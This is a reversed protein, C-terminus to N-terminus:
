SIYNKIIGELKDNIRGITNRRVLEFLVFSLLVVTSMIFISALPSIITFNKFDFWNLYLLMVHGIYVSFMYPAFYSLVKTLWNGKSNKAIMFLSIASILVLPNRNSELLKTIHHGGIQLYSCIFVICVDMMTALCFIRIPNNEFAKLPYSKLYRGITYIFLLQLFTTGNVHFMFEGCFGLLFIGAVVILFEKKDLSMIGKNIVPSVILLLMYASFYWCVGSSTPM